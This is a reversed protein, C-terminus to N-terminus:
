VSLLGAHGWSIHGSQVHDSPGEPSLVGGVWSMKGRLSCLTLWVRDEGHGVVQAM